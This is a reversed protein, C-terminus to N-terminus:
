LQLQEVRAAAARPRGRAPGPGADRAPDRPQRGGQPAREARAGRALTKNHPNTHHHPHALTPHAAHTTSSPLSSVPPPPAPTPASCRTVGGQKRRGGGGAGEGGGGGQAGGAGVGRLAPSRSRACMLLPLASPWITASMILCPWITGECTRAHTHTNAHTHTHAQQGAAASTGAAAAAAAAPTSPRAAAPVGAVPAPSCCCGTTQAAWM